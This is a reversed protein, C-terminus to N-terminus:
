KRLEKTYHALIECFDAVDQDSLFKQLGIRIPYQYDPDKEIFQLVRTPAFIDSSCASGTSVAIGEKESLQIMLESGRLGKFAVSILGPIRPRDKEHIRFDPINQAIFQEIQDQHRTYQATNQEKESAWLEFAKAMGAVLFVNKTHRDKAITPFHEPNKLYTLGIMKPGYIKQPAFTGIDSNKFDPKLGKAFSQAYDRLILANPFSKRIESAEYIAGTESNAHMLAIFQANKPISEPNRPDFYQKEPIEDAISSHEVASAFCNELGFRKQAEWITRRNSDTGSYTIALCAPAVGLIEAITQLYQDIKKKAEFGYVHKSNENGFIELDAIMADKVQPDLPTTAASDFYM